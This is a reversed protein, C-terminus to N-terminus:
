YHEFFFAKRKPFAALAVSNETKLLGLTRASWADMSGCVLSSLTAVDCQADPTGGREALMRGNECRVTFADNNWPCLDDEVQLCFTGKIPTSLGTLMASVDLVRFMAHPELYVAKRSDSFLHHPFEDKPLECRITGCDASKAFNALALLLSQLADGDTYFIEEVELRGSLPAFLAYGAANGDKKCCLSSGGDSQWEALRKECRAIDRVPAVEFRSQSNQWVTLMNCPQLATMECPQEKWFRSESLIVDANIELAACEDILGFGAKRYFGYQFPYLAVCVRGKEREFRFTEKLLKKMYGRKRYAKLTGAGYVFPLDVERDLLRLRLPLLHLLAALKGDEEFARCLAPDYKNAMLWSIYAESDEPFCERWLAAVERERGAVDSFFKM